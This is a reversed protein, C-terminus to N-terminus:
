SRSRRWVHWEVQAALGEMLNVKPKWGFLSWAREVSGDTKKVDGALESGYNVNLRRGTAEGVLEVLERMEVSEGGAVNVVAVGNGGHSARIVADVVDTVYTFSRVHSGGGYVDFVEGDLACEIMRHIAMDPRQAPGYVTFFRLSTVNLGFNDGYLSCLHEAALKTVGYPSFPKPVVDEHTPYTATNGYVSSSSAYVCRAVGSHVSEQLVRQTALVNQVVYEGFEDHGWSSRVGPQAALHYVVDVGDFLYGIDPELLDIEHFEFCRETLLEAINSEKQVRSYYPTFSDVGVVSVGGLRILDRVVASGIFGAAGTVLVRM